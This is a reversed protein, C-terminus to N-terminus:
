FFLFTTSQRSFKIPVRLIAIAINNLYTYLFQDRSRNSSLVVLFLPLGAPPYPTVVCKQATCISTSTNRRSISLPCLAINLLKTATFCALMLCRYETSTLILPTRIVNLPVGTCNYHRHERDHSQSPACFMTWYSQQLLTVPRPWM